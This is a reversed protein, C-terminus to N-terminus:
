QEVLVMWLVGFQDTVMGFRPSFFTTSMAFRVQGGESLAAFVKDAEAESKVSASLACGQFNVKGSCHGDSAFVKSDGIEMEAHLIKRESGRPLHKPPTPSEGYRMMMNVKAGVAKKYFGLAEECRGEFFLYAQVQMLDGRMGTAVAQSDVVRSQVLMAWDKGGGVKHRWKRRTM